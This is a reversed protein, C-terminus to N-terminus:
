ALLAPGGAPVTPLGGRGAGRIRADFPPHSVARRAAAQNRAQDRGLRALHEEDVVVHAELARHHEDLEWIHLHHVEIVGEISQM